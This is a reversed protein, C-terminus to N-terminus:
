TFDHSIQQVISDMIKQKTSGLQQGLQLCIAGYDQQSFQYQTREVVVHAWHKTLGGKVLYEHFLAESDVDHQKAFTECLGLTIVLMKHRVLEAQESDPPQLSKTATQLIAHIEDCLELLKKTNNM